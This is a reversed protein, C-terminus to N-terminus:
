PYETIILETNELAQLIIQCTESVIMTDGKLVLENDQQSSILISGSIATLATFRNISYNYKQKEKLHLYSTTFYESQFVVYVQHAQFDLDYLNNIRIEIIDSDISKLAKYIHLDRPRGKEDTRDWDFLRYTLDAPQQVEYVVIGKGLSHVTGAPIYICDGKKVKKINLFKQLEGKELAQKLQSRTTGQKIGAVIEAGEDCDLIIWAETKGKEQGELEWALEDNPHVQVSLIDNADILKILVPMNDKDTEWSEGINTCEFCKNYQKLKEGGWIRQKLIPNSKYPKLQRVGSCNNPM